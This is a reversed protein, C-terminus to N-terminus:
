PVSPKGSPESPLADAQLACSGPEIEPNPLDGSFSIAAWEPIKAQFIGHVSFYPLSCDMPNCFLWVSSLLKVKVQSELLESLLSETHLTPSGSEIGPNPLDGPSPCPVGSWCEQRSFEMSLPAQRTVTWPTVFLQVHSLMYANLSKDRSQTM